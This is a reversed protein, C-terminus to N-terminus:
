FWARHQDSSSRSRWPSRRTLRDKDVVICKSMAHRSTASRGRESQPFRLSVSTYPLAGGLKGRDIMPGSMLQLIHVVSLKGLVLYCMWPFRQGTLKACTRFLLLRYREAIRDLFVLGALPLDDSLFNSFRGLYHDKLKHGESQTSSQYVACAHSCYAM